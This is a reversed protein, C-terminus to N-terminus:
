LMDDLRSVLQKYEERTYLMNMSELLAKATIDDPLEILRALTARKKASNDKGCLGDEFFDVKTITERHEAAKKTDTFPELLRLLVEKEMGEVGLIGSRSPEKKRREKGKIKPIHINYIKDSEIIGSLFSRIQRGGGDSDCLVIVGNQSIRRILNQKQKNNFVSFGETTIINAEVFGSLKSKDYRGEVIIPLNIRIKEEM